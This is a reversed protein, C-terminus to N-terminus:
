CDLHHDLFLVGYIRKKKTQSTKPISSGFISWNYSTGTRLKNEPFPCDEKESLKVSNNRLDLEIDDNRLDLEIDGFESM